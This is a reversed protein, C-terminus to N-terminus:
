KQKEKEDPINYKRYCILFLLGFIASFGGVVFYLVALLYNKGGFANAMSIIFYKEGNFSEVPYNNKIYLIYEGKKLDTNIRGWPKRFDPLASPRMWVIFREDEIDKWQREPTELNKFKEKDIELAIGKAEIQIIEDEQEEKEKKKKLSFTDNFFSKAILGCPFAVQDQPLETHNINVNNFSRLGLYIHRNLTIPYCDDKIEEEPLWNGKLQKSSKSKIYRRHNQYFNKLRYFVTLNKKLDKTITFNIQCSNGLTCEPNNDYRIEIEEIKLSFLLIIIGIVIFIVGAFELFLVTGKIKPIPRFTFGSRLYTFCTEAKTKNKKKEANGELLDSETKVSNKLDDDENENNDDIDEHIEDISDKTNIESEEDDEKKISNAQEQNNIKINIKKENNPNELNLPKLTKNKQIPNLNIM